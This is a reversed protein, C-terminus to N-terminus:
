RLRETARTGDPFGRHAKQAHQFPRRLDVQAPHHRAPQARIAVSPARPCANPRRHFHPHWQLLFVLRRFKYRGSGKLGRHPTSPASPNSSVGTITMITRSPGSHNPNKASSSSLPTPAWTAPDPSTPPSPHLSPLSTRRLHSITRTSSSFANNMPKSAKRPTSALFSRLSQWSLPSSRTTHRESGPRRQM